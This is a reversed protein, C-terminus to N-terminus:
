RICMNLSLSKKHFFHSHFQSELTYFSQSITRLEYKVRWLRKWMDFTLKLFRLLWNWLWKLYLTLLSSVWSLICEITYVPNRLGRPHRIKVPWKWCFLGISLPEKASFLRCSLADQPDEGGQIHKNWIDASIVSDRRTLTHTHTHAHTCTHARAVPHCFGMPTGPPTSDYSAKDKSTMKRLLARCNTARKRFSIQLNLCGTCRQQGTPHKM